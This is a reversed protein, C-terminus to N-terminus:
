WFWMYMDAAFFDFAQLHRICGAYTKREKSMGPLPILDLNDADQCPGLYGGGGFDDDDFSLGDILPNHLPIAKADDSLM